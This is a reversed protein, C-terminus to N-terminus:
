ASEGLWHWLGQASLLADLEYRERMREADGPRGRRALQTAWGALLDEVLGEQSAAQRARECMDDILAHLAAGVGRCDSITDFHTPAIRAPELALIRDISAHMAEPDFQPPATEPVVLPGDPGELEPYGVGFADGALVTATAPEWFSVHHRAHGPTQIATLSREGVAVSESDPLAFAREAPVPVLPAYEREFFTDGYVARVGQELKSPDVLHRVASRHGLLAANPLAEMLRGAGGAHDLHAHTVLVAGVDAVDIGLSGLAELLSEVNAGVGTDVIATDDGGTVVYVATHQPRVYHTDFRHIGDAVTTLRAAM